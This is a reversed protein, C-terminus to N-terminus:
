SIHAKYIFQVTFVVALIEHIDQRTDYGQNCIRSTCKMVNNANWCYSLLSYAVHFCCTSLRKKNSVKVLVFYVRRAFFHGIIQGSKCIFSKHSSRVQLCMVQSKVQGSKHLIVQSKVQIAFRNNKVQGSKCLFSKHSSRVQVSIVQPKVQSAFLHSSVQGSNCLFSKHSSMVESKHNWRVQMYIVQSKVQSWKVQLCIVQSTVQSAFFNGQSKVQSWVHSKVQSSPHRTVQSSNCLFVQGSKVQSACLHSTIQSSKVQSAFFNSTVWGWKCLFSKHCQLYIVKHSLRVDSEHRSRVQVYIVQSM